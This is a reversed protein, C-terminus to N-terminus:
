PPPAPPFWQGRRLISRLSENKYSEDLYRGGTREEVRASRTAVLDKGDFTYETTALACTYVYSRGRKEGRSCVVNADYARDNRLTFFGREMREHEFAKVRRLKGATATYLEFYNASGSGGTSWNTHVFLLDAHGIRVVAIGDLFQPALSDDEGGTEVADLVTWRDSWRLYLLRVTRQPEWEEVDVAAVVFTDREQPEIACPVVAAARYGVPLLAALGDSAARSVVGASALRAAFAGALLVGALRRPRSTV